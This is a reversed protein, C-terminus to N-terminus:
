VGTLIVQIRNGGDVTVQSINQAYNPADVTVTYSGTTPIPSFFSQGSVGTSITQDYGSGTVRVSANQIPVQSANLVTVHLTTDEHPVLVIDLNTSSGPSMSIPTTVSTEKMDYGSTAGDITFTYTDWTMNQYSFTGSSDTSDQHRFLYVDQGGGDVGIKKTGTITFPVNGIAAGSADETSVSLSSASDIVFTKTTTDSLVASLHSHDVDPVFSATQDYTQETTYGSKTVSIEYTGVSPTLGPITITGDDNTFTTLDVVPSVTSNTLRVTAGAVAAGASDLAQFILTGLSSGGEVGSPTIQTILLVTRSSINSNWLVEVRAQKYDANISDANGSGDFPDDIYRIDTTVTYTSNNRTVEETQPIPGAPVGGMTGVDDYSLNRIMEMKENALATAVIRRQADHTSKLILTIFGFMGVVVVGLVFVSILVEIISFGKTM